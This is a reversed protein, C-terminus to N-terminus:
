DPLVATVEIEVLAKSEVLRKVEVATMAPFHKGIVRRYAEGIAAGQALYDAVDVFYWNMRVIHQPGAGATALVEVINRLAQEIQAPLGEAFNGQADWGVQGGLAIWEGKAAIGNSYGKPRPWNEPQLIRLPNM